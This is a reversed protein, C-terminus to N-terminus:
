NGMFRNSVQARKMELILCLDTTNVDGILIVGTDIRLFVQSDDTM